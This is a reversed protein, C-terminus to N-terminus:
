ETIIKVLHKLSYIEKPLSEIKTFKINLIELNELKLIDSDIKEVKNCSIDLKKLNQLKYIPSPIKNLKNMALSLSKINKLLVVEKPLDVLNNSGLRLDKLKSLKALKTFTDKIDLNAINILDIRELSSLKTIADPLKEIDSAGLILTHLSSLKEIDEPLNDVGSGVLELYELNKLNGIRKPPKTIEVCLKKLNKLNWIEDPIEHFQNEELNLETLFNLKLIDNPFTELYRYGLDLKKVINPNIKNFYIAEDIKNFCTYDTFDDLIYKEKFLLYHCKLKASIRANNIIKNVFDELYIVKINKKYKPLIIDNFLLNKFENLRNNHKPYLFVIYTNDDIYSLNRLTQYNKRYTQDFRLYKEKVINELRPKYISNYRDKQIDKASENFYGFDQETYKIEFLIKNGDKFSLFFDFNTGEKSNMIKEFGAEHLFLNKEAFLKDVSLDLDTLLVTLIFRIFETDMNNIDKSLEDIYPYFLNFCMAQSSNLHHFGQHLKIRSKHYYSLLKFYDWFEKRYTEIINLNRLKPPLIYKHCRNKCGKGDKAIQLREKKYHMLNKKVITYYNNM